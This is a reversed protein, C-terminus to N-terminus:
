MMSISVNHRHEPASQADSCKEHFSHQTDLRFCIAYDLRYDPMNSWFGGRSGIWDVSERYGCETASIAFVGMVVEENEQVM